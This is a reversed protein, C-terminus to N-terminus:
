ESLTRFEYGEAKLWDIAAPLANSMNDWAKLSDHFVIISGSRTYKKVNALVKEPTMKPSYDRTVLDYMIINYHRKLVRAQSWRMLGHPPRFLSSEILTDAEKIDRLYRRPTTKFGQLHHMTHNGYGHGRRKIEQLLEPHRRVNDGVLFFTAKVGKQDLLDLVWPTTEPIPGDDFTLYVVKSGRKKIRWIAEPFLLRYLLPPQEILM